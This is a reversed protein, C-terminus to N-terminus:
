AVTGGRLYNYLIDIDTENFIINAVTFQGTRRVAEKANTYLTDIDINGAADALTTIYDKIKNKYTFTVFYTMFKQLGVAKSGIENDIYKLVREEVENISLTM